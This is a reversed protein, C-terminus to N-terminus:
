KVEVGKKKIDFRYIAIITSILEFVSGILVVYAGVSFNFTIWLGSILCSLKRFIKLDKQWLAYTYLITALVPVVSLINTYTFIGVVICAIILLYFSTEPIEKEGKKDYFYFVICRTFSVLSMLCASLSNLLVYQLGYFLNAFLQLFLIIGKKNSQLSTVLFVLGIFGIIQPIYDM